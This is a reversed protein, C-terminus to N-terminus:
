HDTRSAIAKEVKQKVAELKFSAGPQM